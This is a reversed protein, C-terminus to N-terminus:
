KDDIFVDLHAGCHTCQQVTGRAEAPFRNERGCEDCAVELPGSAPTVSSRQAREKDHEDLLAKARQATSENTVCIAIGEIDAAGFAMVGPNDRDLVSAEIDHEELWAVIIDAEEVTATRRICVPEQGM